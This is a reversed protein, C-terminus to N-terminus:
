KPGAPTDPAKTIEALQAIHPVILNASELEFRAGEGTGTLQYHTIGCNPVDAERDIDLIQQEDLCELLYRFCNVIVQHAM